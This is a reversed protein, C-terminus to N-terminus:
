SIWYFCNNGLGNNSKFFWCLAFSLLLGQGQERTKSKFVWRFM